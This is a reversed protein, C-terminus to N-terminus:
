EEYSFDEDMDDMEDDDADSEDDEYYDSRHAKAEVPTHHSQKEERADWSHFLSIAIPVAKIRKSDIFLGTIKQENGIREIGSFAVLAGEKQGHIYAQLDTANDLKEITDKRVLFWDDTRLLLRQNNITAIWTNRSRAGIMNITPPTENESSEKKFISLLVRKTGSANWLECELAKESITRIYLLTQGRSEQGLEVKQWMGDQYVLGDGEHVWLTYCTTDCATLVIREAEKKDPDDSLAEYLADKGWWTANENEFLHADAVMGDIMITDDSAQTPLPTSTVTFSALHNPEQIVQGNPLLIESSIVVAKEKPTFTLKLPANKAPTWQNKGNDYQLFLPNDARVRVFDAQGKLGILLYPSTHESDPRAFAGHYLIQSRLDPLYLRMPLAHLLFPPAANLNLAPVEERKATQVPLCPFTTEEKEKETFSFLFLVIGVVHLSLLLRLTPLPLM